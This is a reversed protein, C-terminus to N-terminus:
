DPNTKKGTSKTGTIEPLEQKKKKRQKYCSM